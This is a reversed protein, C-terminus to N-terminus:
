KQQNVQKRWVMLHCRQTHTIPSKITSTIVKSGMAESLTLLISAWLELRSSGELFLPLSPDLPSGSSPSLAPLVGLHVTTLSNHPDHQPTNIWCNRYHTHTHTHTSITNFSVEWNQACQFSSSFHFHFVESFLRCAFYILINFKRERLLGHAYLTWWSGLNCCHSQRGALNLLFPVGNYM